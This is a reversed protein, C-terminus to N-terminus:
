WKRRANTTQSIADAISQALQKTNDIKVAKNNRVDSRLGSLDVSSSGGRVTTSGGRVSNSIYNSMIQATSINTPKNVITSNFQEGAAMLLAYRMQPNLTVFQALEDAPVSEHYIAKVAEKYRRNTRTPIIAEGPMVMAHVSDQGDTGGQVSLTGKAFKPIPQAIIVALQSAITAATIAVLAPNASVKIIEAAGNIIANFVALAKERVAQERELKKIQDERKKDLAELTKDYQAQSIAKDKLLTDYGEKEADFQANVIDIREATSNATIETIAAAFAQYAGIAANITQANDAFWQDLSKKTETNNEADYQKRLLALQAYLKETETTFEQGFTKNIEIKDQVSQIEAAIDAVKLEQEQGFYREANILKQINLKDDVSKLQTAMETEMQKRLEALRDMEAKEAAIRAAEAKKRADEAAKARQTGRKTEENTLFKTLQAELIQTQFIARENAKIREDDAELTGQASAIAAQNSAIIAQQKQIELKLIKDQAVGQANALDIQDQLSQVREDQADQFTKDFTVQAAALDDFKKQLRISSELAEENAEDILYIAGAVAGAAAAFLFLPSTVLAATLSKTAAAATTSAAAEAEIAVTAGVTAAQTAKQAQTTFGLVTSVNKLADGLQGLQSIGQTINLFGQFQQALKNVKENEVGFAQLAGTAVQFAGFAAQGVQNFAKAKADPDLADLTQNLDSLEAKLEGARKAANRFQESSQGFKQGADVAAQKAEQLQTRLSKTANSATTAGKTLADSFQKASVGAANLEDSVGKKFESGVKKFIEADKETIKGLEAMKVIAQDLSKEDEVVFKIKIDTTAM